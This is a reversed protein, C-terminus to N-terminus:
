PIGVGRFCGFARCVAPHTFAAHVSTAPVPAVGEKVAPPTTARDVQESAVTVRGTGRVLRPREACSRECLTRTRVAPSRNACRVVRPKADFPRSRVQFPSRCVAPAYEGSWSAACQSRYIAALTRMTFRRDLPCLQEVAHDDPRDARGPGEVQQDARAAILRQARGHPLQATVRHRATVPSETNRIDGRAYPSNDSHPTVM